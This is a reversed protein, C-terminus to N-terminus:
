ERISAAHIVDGRTLREAVEMGEIVRAFATYRGDLHPQATLTIFFQSGGTDRGALAMGVVGREYPVRNDECRQSWEPGGYGDGRPDGGQVVFAPVVRHFTLGDYFGARVLGAFRATTSPAWDTRLELAIDGRSTSLVVVVPDPGLLESAGIPNPPPAFHGEPPALDLVELAERAAARVAYAHHLALGLAITGLSGERAAQVAGLATVLGELDDSARFRDAATRVADLSAADPWPERVSPAGGLLEHLAEADRASVAARFRNALADLAAIVVGDDLDTMLTALLSRGDPHTMAGLAGAVAERVVVSDDGILRSLYATREREAGDLLGIIEAALRHREADDVHEGGCQDVRSPWGRGLDVLRALACHILAHDRDSPTTETFLAQAVLSLTTTRATGTPFAELAALLANVARPSGIHALVRAHVERLANALPREAESRSGLARFAQVSVDWDPDGLLPILTAAPTDPGRGLARVTMARVEPDPDTLARALDDSLHETPPARLVAHACAIRVGRDRDDGLRAAVRALLEPNLPRHELGYSTLADCAAAREVPADAGLSSSLASLAAEGGVRGLDRLYDARRTPDPEAAIAALLPGEFAPDGLGALGLSAHRRVAEDPDRLARLLHPAARDDRIRALGLVARARDDALPADLHAVFPELQRTDAAITAETSGLRSPEPEPPVVPDDMPISATGCSCLLAIAFVRKM